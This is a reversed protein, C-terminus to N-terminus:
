QAGRSEYVSIFRDIHASDRLIVNFDNYATHRDNDGMNFPTLRCGAVAKKIQKDTYGQKLWKNIISKRDNVLRTNPKDMTEQWFAFIQRVQEAYPKNNNLPKPEPQPQPYSESQTEDPNAAPNGSPKIKSGVPNGSPKKTPRGGKKGNVRASEIRPLDKAMVELSKRNFYGGDEKVFYQDLVSDIAEQESKEFARCIRYIAQKNNPLPKETGYVYDLMMNYAGHEIMSLHATDSQYDGIFRKYFNM